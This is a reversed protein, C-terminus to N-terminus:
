DDSTSFDPAIIENGDPLKHRHYIEQFAFFHSLFSDRHEGDRTLDFGNPTNGSILIKLVLSLYKITESIIAAAHNATHFSIVGHPETSVMGPYGLPPPAMSRFAGPHDCHVSSSLLTKQEKRFQIHEDIEEESLGALECATKIYQYVKGYGINKKWLSEFDVSEEGSLLASFEHDVLCALSVDLSEFYNRTISRCTEEFGNTLLLRIAILCNVSRHLQSLFAGSQTSMKREGVFRTLLLLCSTAQELFFLHKPILESAQKNATDFSEALYKDLEFIKAENFRAKQSNWIDLFETQIQESSQNM